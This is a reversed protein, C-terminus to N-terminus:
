YNAIKLISGPIENMYIVEPLFEIKMYQNFVRDIRKKNSIYDHFRFVNIWYHHSWGKLWAEPKQHMIGFEIINVLANSVVFLKNMDLQDSDVKFAINRYEDWSSVDIDEIMKHNHSYKIFDEELILWICKNLNIENSPHARLKTRYKNLIKSIDDSTIFNKDAAKILKAMKNNKYKWTLGNELISERYWEATKHVLNM